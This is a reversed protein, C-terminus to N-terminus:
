LSICCHFLPCLIYYLFPMLPQSICMVKLLHFICHLLNKGPAELLSCQGALVKVKAGHSRPLIELRCLTLRDIQAKSVCCRCYNTVTGISFSYLNNQRLAASNLLQSLSWITWLAQIISHTARQLFCVWGRPYGLVVSIYHSGRVSKSFKWLRMKISSFFFTFNTTNM